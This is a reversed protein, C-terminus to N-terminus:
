KGHAPTAMELGTGAVWETGEGNRRAGHGGVLLLTGPWHASWSTLCHATNGCSLVWEEEEEEEEWLVLGRVKVALATWTAAESGGM